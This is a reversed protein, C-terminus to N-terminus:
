LPIASCFLRIHPKVNGELDSRVEDRAEEAKDLKQQTKDLRVKVKELEKKLDKERRDTLDFVKRMEDVTKCWEIIM